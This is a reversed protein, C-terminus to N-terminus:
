ISWILIYAFRYVIYAKIYDPCNLIWMGFSIKDETNATLVKQFLFCKLQILKTIGDIISSEVSM